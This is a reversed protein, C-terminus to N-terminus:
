VVDWFRTYTQLPRWGLAVWEEVLDQSIQFWSMLAFADGSRAKEAISKSFTPLRNGKWEALTSVLPSAREWGNAEAEQVNGDPCMICITGSTKKPVFNFAGFELPLKKGVIPDWVEGRRHQKEYFRIFTDANPVYGLMKM